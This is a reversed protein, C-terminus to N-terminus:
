WSVLLKPLNNTDFRVYIYTTRLENTGPKSLIGRAKTELSFGLNIPIKTSQINDEDTWVALRRLNLAEFAYHTLANAAEVIYGKGQQSTRCWYGIRASPINWELHHLGICGIFQNDSFIGLTMDTRQLFQIHLKRIELETEQITPMKQCWSLWQTLQDFSEVIAANVMIGDGPQIPRILLRPTRIPFPFNHLLPNMSGESNTTKKHLM